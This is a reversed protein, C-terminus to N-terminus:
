PDADRLVGKMECRRTKGKDFKVVFTQGETGVGETGVGETAVVKGSLKEITRGLLMSPTRIPTWSKASRTCRWAEKTRSLKPSSSSRM